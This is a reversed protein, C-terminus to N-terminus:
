YDKKNCKWCLCRLNDEILQGGKTIPTIPAIELLLTPDHRTSVGCVQCTYNNARKILNRRNKTLIIIEKQKKTKINDDLWTIFAALTPPSLELTYSLHSKGASSTYSFIYQPYDLSSLDLRTLKLHKYLSPKFLKILFPLDDKIEIFLNNRQMQLLTRSETYSIFNNLMINALDRSREDIRIDFYKCVYKFGNLRANSVITRSCHYTQRHRPEPFLPTHNYRWRGISTTKGVFQQHTQGGLINQKLAYSYYNLNNFTQITDNVSKRLTQFDQSKFYFTRYIIIGFLISILIVNV